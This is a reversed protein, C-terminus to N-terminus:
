SGRTTLLQYASNIEKLKEEAKARLQDDNHFRDPHWVKALVRYADKIQPQTADRTLGFSTLAACRDCAPRKENTISGCACVSMVRGPEGSLDRILFRELM